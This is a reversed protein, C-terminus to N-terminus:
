RPLFNNTNNVFESKNKKPKNAKNSNAWIQTKLAENQKQIYEGIWAVGVALGVAFLAGTWDSNEDSANTEAIANKRAPKIPKLDGTKEANPENAKAENPQKNPKYASNPENETTGTLERYRNEPLEYELLKGRENRVAWEAVPKGKCLHDKKAAGSLSAPAVDLLEALKKGSLKKTEFM